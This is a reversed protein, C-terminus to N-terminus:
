DVRQMQMETITRRANFTCKLWDLKMMGSIV